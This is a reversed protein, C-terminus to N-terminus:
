APARRTQAAPLGLEAAVDVFGLLQAIERPTRGLLDGRAPDAGAALLARAPLLLGHMACAHLPGVGRQDQTNVDARRKVLVALLTLLPAQDVPTRPHAHAGLLLALATQGAGNCADIAAGADLLLELTRRAREVERSAFAYQAAAHLARTGREDAADAQAGHALLQAVFEPLGLGAAVMLATGGGPLRQDAAVGHQLMADVVAGQRASVAASLASAGSAATQAPNAGHELLFGVIAVHGNGAARVLATAGQADTADIPLGLAILKEVATMDGSAAADVLDCGRLARRPAKWAPWNLWYQLEPRALALGLPTEGNASRAEPNAGARLLAQLLAKATDAPAALAAFLPTRGLRDRTQPEVGYDLLAQTLVVSGTAVALALPTRGEADAGFCDAGRALLDLAFSEMEASAGRACAVLTRRLADGGGVPAGAYVLERAAPLADPIQELAVTLLPTGDELTANPDLGHNLLWRRTAPDSHTVLGAFLRARETQPWRRVSESFLEVVNWNGFRLADLLHDPSDAACAPAVEADSVTAPRPYEPDLLAVINWRGGAAAFDVARRGDAVALSRAAGLELLRRVTQESARKSQSAIMLASRGAHDVLDAAPKHRALEEIVDLSDARAAEMLATIGHADTTNVQAGADLLAKAIAAHGHLAAAMLATRGLADRADVRAKRRLLLKVGQVDDEGIAAAAILAPQAHPAEVKAGRELLFRVLEWNAAEGAVALPTQGARNVPDLEAGADCLLAAVIARVSLAAFHLPTNGDADICNPHAGNTLLTTVAEVRGEQSDRTAAILPPLGAHARNLDAGKAILGRLLRMDPNLAALVLLSRQDRDEPPPVGNPDAGHELASLALKVQGARVCRLLMANLDAGADPLAAAPEPTPREVNNPVAEHSREARERRCELLLASASRRLVLWGILPAGVLAYVGLAYLRSEGPATTGIGALSLAGQVLLLLAAAVLLGHSFFLENETSLHRALAISRALPSRRPGYPFRYTADIAVLGFAPWLHWLGLLALVAAGSVALASGLSPEQRLHAMPYGVLLAAVAAYAALLLVCSGACTIDARLGPARRLHTFRSLALFCLAEACLLAVLAIWSDAWAAGAFAAIAAVFWAIGSWSNRRQLFTTSM